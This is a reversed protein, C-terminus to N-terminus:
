KCLLKGMRHGSVSLGVGLLALLFLVDVVQAWGVWGLSIGRILDVSRYLPSVEVLWRLAPPYSEAPVFTGSFLFLAFQGAGILDFDQWSRILTSVTMGLAGFAFGVLVTAPFAALARLPTTLDMVVMIVLFAASYVSGRIMAWVLEGLAIEFPQIPTALIGDYLRMFKMKGFFNFTTEALAGSMASAALMAPAVFETYGVLRGGPLELDGILAGVGVGISFLYLVPELLGGAMVVWYASKLTSINRETVRASRGASGEFSVLKPWVLTLM